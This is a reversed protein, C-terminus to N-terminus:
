ADDEEEEEEEFMADWCANCTGSIIRERQDENISPMTRQAVGGALFAEFEDTPLTIAEPSGCMCQCVVTTMGDPTDVRDSLHPSIAEIM